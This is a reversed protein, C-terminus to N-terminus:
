RQIIVLNMFFLYMAGITLPIKFKACEHVAVIKDMGSVIWAEKCKPLVKSIPFMHSAIINQQRETLNFNRNANELAKLPHNIFSNKSIEEAKFFDHLLAARTVDVYNKIHLKKCVNFTLRAVSLSHDLRSIGHHIEYKLAIFEENKLIDSIINNFEIEKNITM